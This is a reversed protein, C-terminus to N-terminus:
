WSMKRTMKQRKMQKKEEKLGNKWTVKKGKQGKLKAKKEKGRKGNSYGKM